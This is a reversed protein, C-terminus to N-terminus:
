HARETTAIAYLQGTANRLATSTISVELLAGAKNLRQTQYPQLVKSQSLESLTKLATAQLAPPIRQHVNMLLAEAESWGYLREAGPNWALTRGEPDQVTIADSADRLVVAMRLQENALRLAERTHVIETIDIFSIVAGEIVNDLTRYPQIRLKYWKDDLTKVEVEKAVLTNLVMRVDTVLTDYAVLNSVIHAVPRGVDGAILNIVSSAAPTFRLIRLQHDVFVTGIGTGALLNSMDDNVRSLDTVKIQLETNVTALEENVSQMEENSSKLEETSSELEERSSQLYEDKIRLEQLLTSLRTELDLEAASAGAAPAARTPLPDITQQASEQLVVLFLPTEPNALPNAPLPSVCLDIQSYHGNTKVRLSQSRVSSGSTRAQHLATSLAPGLGERAMKLINNAGSEGQAPELYLGSRGHLYLIDGQANVLLGAAVVQQLLARETLERLPLKVPFGTKESDRGSGAKAAGVNPLFRGALSRQLGLLSDKRQYLKAKRDLPSFLDDFNGIGESTGLFLTAGPNLAYHFLPILKKQLDAGLYILLNRCSILDLKSFPPDKVLDQESFVLMDRIGKHVRYTQGGPEAVFFRALREPSVDAAISAPYVGVRAVAIAQNDIDTAFIQIAYSQRLVEMREQLLIALSYAEEGTSCGTSWIRIVADARKNAFLKPIVQKELVQFAEPDRFFNTVGILLDRFLAELEPPTNQLFKIYDEIKRIQQVAMRREIRRQITSPKYGSFDHRTQARLLIFIKKLASESKPSTTLATPGGHGYAHAAYAMLQKAMEVAPLQYDVLGTAIASRPMGDYETSDPSQAMVMGGEGKIARVGLTGDSGTGSLVIGIAREHQDQALTSFFFDIPLRQGRPAVPDLLQLTGGLFAMDRNPPIIYACNVQVPMGDEVEFVQMRTYRRILDVLISKHDPALHQVLVFAMGPEVDAPMGSFFAEFAALGGASAGLGVVPFGPKSIVSEDASDSTVAPAPVPLPATRQAARREPPINKSM